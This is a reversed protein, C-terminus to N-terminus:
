LNKLYLCWENYIEEESKGFIEEYKGKGAAYAIVKDWGYTNDLFEIYKYSFAYGGMNSFKLGNNTHMDKISPIKRPKYEYEEPIQGALYTALGNDWFYSLKKNIRYNIAHVLEHLTATLISDHTHGKVPTNPSVMMINGRHSDGIHWSPAFTLTIFGAERIALQNQTTYIYVDIPEERKLDMKNYIEESMEVLLNFVEQAGEEEGPHYYLSIYDNKLAESGWPKLIFVPLTQIVLLILLSVTIMIFRGKKEKM